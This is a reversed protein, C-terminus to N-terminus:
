SNMEAIDAKLQRVEEAKEQRRSRMLRQIDIKNYIESPRNIELEARVKEAAEQTTYLGLTAWDSESERVVFVPVEEEEWQGNEKKVLTPYKTPVVEYAM